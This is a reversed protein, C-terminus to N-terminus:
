NDGFIYPLSPSPIKLTRLYEISEDCDIPTAEGFPMMRRKGAFGNLYLFRLALVSVLYLPLQVENLSNFRFNPVVCTRSTDLLPYM